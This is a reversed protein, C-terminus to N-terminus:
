QSWSEILIKGVGGVKRMPPVEFYQLLFRSIDGFLPAATSEAWEVDRPRNLRVIMAFKPDEVPGFGAFSGVTNDNSYGGNSSAVQATGTKGAIYYGPVGAKKGHGHEVVSVLMAGVLRTTKPSLVQSVDQPARKEVSGDPHRIEDISMPKKLTGGNAIAAYAMVIQLPNVTIGQGFSATARFVEAKKSLSSIDGATEKQLEIGTNKGFGFKKVYSEFIDGGMQRMSFVMGTNISDELVKTMDSLGYVKGEANGIPKPWGEVMVSGTDTFTTSPSVAGADIAAAMTLPKFISGPEYADFIAPNNFRNVDKVDGYHNPDYDPESCMALIKGTKPEVIIVSGGDAGHRKVAEKLLTCAKFQITRDITLVIDSGDVAPKLSNNAIAILRGATDKESELYGATGALAQEFYGEIGYRGVKKGDKDSGIFGLIHGGMEGEPYVRATEEVFQIGSLALKKIKDQEAQTINHQIPEYPDNKNSLRVVLADKRDTEWKLISGIAEVAARADTIHRPDAFLFGVQQNTILPVLEGDKNDHAYVTGRKPYLQRFIDHQGSALAQYTGHSVVQIYFLRLVILGAFLFVGVRFTELRWDRKTAGTQHHWNRKKLEM